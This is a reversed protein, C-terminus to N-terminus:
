NNDVNRAALKSAGWIFNAMRDMFGFLVYGAGLSPITLNFILALYPNSTGIGFIALLV